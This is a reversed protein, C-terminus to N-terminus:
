RDVAKQIERLHLESIGCTAEEALEWRPHTLHYTKEWMGRDKLRFAAGLDIVKCGKELFSAAVQISEATPLALFVVDCPTAEEPHILRVNAGYLNPQSLAIDNGSRSTAWALEAIPHELIIRLAEGGMYGTAGFIGVKM